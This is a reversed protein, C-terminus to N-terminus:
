DALYQKLYSNNIDFNNDQLKRINLLEEYKQKNFIKRGIYFDIDSNKNFAKKFRYLGDELGNVGGGLLFRRYGNKNGWCAIDYILLNSPAYKQYEKRSAALHYHMNCNSYLIMAMAVIENDKEAYVIMFNNKLENLMSKFFTDDFYYYDAANNREMTENYMDIFKNIFKGVNDYKIRIDSKKAKNIMNRDKSKINELIASENNIDISVVSSLKKSYYMDKLLVHSSMFPHFRVFESVINANKCWETYEQNLKDIEEGEVIWAGYGYPTSFDFYCGSEIKGIFHKEECLDRKMVVNIAKTNGHEFYFLLPEGDGNIKFSKAYGNLYYIDYQAFSNVIENWKQINDVDIVNLM